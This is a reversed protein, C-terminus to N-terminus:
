RALRNVSRRVLEKTSKDFVVKHHGNDATVINDMAGELYSGDKAWVHNDFSPYISIIKKNVGRNKKLEQIITSDPLLEWFARHPVIKAMASGSFPTALAVMGIVRGDGNLHSLLYKGILGGKSHAVLVAGRIDREDILERVHEASLPINLLNNKLKRVVYVPHGDFSLMNALPRIFAWREMIGPLIIVPCKGAVIHGLHHKPPKIFTFAAAQGLAMYLYDHLWLFINKM